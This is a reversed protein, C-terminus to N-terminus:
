RFQAGEWTLPSSAGSFEPLHLQARKQSAGRALNAVLAGVGGTYAGHHGQLWPSAPISCTCANVGVDILRLGILHQIPPSPM